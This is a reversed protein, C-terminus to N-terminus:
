RIKQYPPTTQTCNWQTHKRIGVRVGVRGGIVLSDNLANLWCAEPWLVQRPLSHRMQAPQEVERVQRYYNQQEQNEREERGGKRHNGLLSKPQIKQNGSGSLWSSSLGLHYSELQFFLRPFNHSISIWEPTFTSSSVCTQGIQIVWTMVARRYTPVQMPVARDAHIQKWSASAVVAAHELM